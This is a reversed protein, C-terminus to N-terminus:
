QLQGLVQFLRNFEKTIHRSFGPQFVFLESESWSAEQPFITDQYGQPMQDPDVSNAMCTAVNKARSNEFFHRPITMARADDTDDHHLFKSM